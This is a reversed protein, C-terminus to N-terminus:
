FEGDMDNPLGQLFTQFLCLFANHFQWRVIPKLLGITYLFDRAWHFLILITIYEFTGMIPHDMKYGNQDNQIM